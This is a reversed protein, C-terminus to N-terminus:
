YARGETFSIGATAFFGSSTRDRLLTRSEGNIELIHPAWSSGFPPYQSLATSEVGPVASIREVIEPWRAAMRGPDTGFGRVGPMVILTQDVDFGVDLRTATVLSRTLLATLVLLVLSAAAQAGVLASRARGDGTASRSGSDPRRLPGAATAALAFRAPAVATVVGVYLSVLGVFLLVRWDADIPLRPLGRLIWYVLPTGWGLALLGLLGAAGSVLLSEILM